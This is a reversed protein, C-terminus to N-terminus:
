LIARGGRFFKVAIQLYKGASMVATDHPRSTAPCLQRPNHHLAALPYIDNLQRLRPSPGLLRSEHDVSLAATCNARAARRSRLYRTLINSHIITTGM